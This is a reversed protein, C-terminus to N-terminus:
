KYYENNYAVKIIRAKNKEHIKIIDLLISMVYDDTLCRNLDIKTYFITASKYNHIDKGFDLKDSDICYDATDILSRITKVIRIVESERKGGIAIAYAIYISSCDESFFIIPYFGRSPSYGNFDKSISRDLLAIYMIRSWQGCSGPRGKIKFGKIDLRLLYDSLYDPIKHSVLQFLENSKNCTLKKFYVGSASICKLMSCLRDDREIADLVRVDDMKFGCDNTRPLLTDVCILFCCM